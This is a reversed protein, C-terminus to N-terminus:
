RSIGGRLKAKEIYVQRQTEFSVKDNLVDRLINRDETTLSFGEAEMTFITEKIITEM